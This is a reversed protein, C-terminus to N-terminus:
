REAPELLRLYVDVAIVGNADAEEEPAIAVNPDFIESQEGDPGAMLRMFAKLFPEARAATWRTEVRCVTRRCLVSKMLEPPIDDARLAATIHKEMEAAASSRPETRFLRELEEVPGIRAPPPPEPVAHPDPPPTEAAAPETPQGQQPDQAAQASPAEPDRSPAAYQPQSDHTLEPQADHADPEAASTRRDDRTGRTGVFWLLAAGLAVALAILTKRSM